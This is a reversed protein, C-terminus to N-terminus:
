HFILYNRYQYYQQDCNRCFSINQNFIRCNHCSCGQKPKLQGVTHGGEALTFTNGCVYCSRAIRAEAAALEREQRIRLDNIRQEEMIRNAAIAAERVRQEREREQQAERNLREREEARRREEAERERLREQEVKEREKRQEEELRQAEEHQRKLEETKKEAERLQAEQKERKRDLEQQRKVVAAQDDIWLDFRQQTAAAAPGKLQPRLLNSFFRADTDAHWVRAKTNAEWFSLSKGERLASHLPACEQKAGLMDKLAAAAAECCLESAKQNEVQLAELSPRFHVAPSPPSPLSGFRAAQAHRAAAVGELAQSYKWALDNETLPMSARLELVFSAYAEAAQKDAEDQAQRQLQAFVGGSLPLAQRNVSTLVVRLFELLSAGDKLGRSSGVSSCASVLAEVEQLGAAFGATLVDRTVGRQLVSESYAPIPLRVCHRRQFYSSVSERSENRDRMAQTNAVKSALMDELYAAATAGAGGSQQLCADRELWLLAPAAVEQATSSAVSLHAALRVGTALTEFHSTNMVGHVNYILLDAFMACAAMMKLDNLEGDFLGQTDVFLTRTSAVFLAKMGLTCASTSSSVAFASKGGTLLNFLSSKGGKSAGVIVVVAMPATVLQLLQQGRATLHFSETTVEYDILDFVLGDFSSTSCPPEQEQEQEKRNLCSPGTDDEAAKYNGPTTELSILTYSTSIHALRPSSPPHTLYLCYISHSNLLQPTTLTTNM